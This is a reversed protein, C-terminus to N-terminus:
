LLRIDKGYEEETESLLTFSLKKPLRIGGRGGGLSVDVSPLFIVVVSSSLCSNDWKVTCSFLGDALAFLLVSSFLANEDKEPLVTSSDGGCNLDDSGLIIILGDGGAEALEDAAPSVIAVVVVVILEM